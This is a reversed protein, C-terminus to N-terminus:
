RLMSSMIEVAENIGTPEVYPKEPLRLLREALSALRNADELAPIDLPLCRGVRSLWETLFPSEPWDPRPLYLMPVGNVAVETCTGYGPKGIVLDCATLLDTFGLEIAEREIFDPRSCPRGSVIWRWGPLNPWNKWNLDPAFGGFAILGLRQAPDLGLSQRLETRTAGSRLAIPGISQLNTLREMPMAPEPRLFIQASAYGERMKAEIDASERLDSFYFHYIDAWNLCSLAIAPVKARKAALLTIYSINSLVLDVHMNILKAATEEVVTDIKKHLENYDRATKEFLIETASAQRLGFDDTGDLASWPEAYRTALWQRPVASQITIRLDPRHQRLLAVVPATMSAHGFGHSSLSLFLHPPV